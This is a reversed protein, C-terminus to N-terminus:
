QWGSRIFKTKPVKLPTKPVKIRIEAANEPTEAVNVANKPM